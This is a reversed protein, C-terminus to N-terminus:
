AATSSAYGELSSTIFICRLTRTVEPVDYRLSILQLRLSVRYAGIPVMVCVLAPLLYTPAAVFHVFHLNLGKNLEVKTMNGRLTIPM